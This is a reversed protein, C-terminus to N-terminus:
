MKVVEGTSADFRYVATRFPNDNVRICPEMRARSSSQWDEPHWMHGLKFEAAIQTNMEASAQAVMIRTKLQAYFAIGTSTKSTGFPPYVAAWAADVSVHRTKGVALVLRKMFAADIVDSGRPMELSTSVFDTTIFERLDHLTDEIKGIRENMMLLFREQVTM